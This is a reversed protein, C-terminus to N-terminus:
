IKVRYQEMGEIENLIKFNFREKHIRHATQKSVALSESFKVVV